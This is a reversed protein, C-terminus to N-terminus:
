RTTAIYYSYVICNGIDVFLNYCCQANQAKNNAKNTEMGCTYLPYPM